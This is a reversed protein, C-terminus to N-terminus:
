GGSLERYCRKRLPEIEMRSMNLRALEKEEASYFPRWGMRGQCGSLVVETVTAPFDKQAVTQQPLYGIKRRTMGEGWILEGSRPNQLGLITRMLTSKGSGNEGIICLYDGKNIEFDLDKVILNGEYGLCVKKGILQAM